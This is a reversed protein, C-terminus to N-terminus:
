AFVANPEQIHLPLSVFFTTGKGVASEFWLRGGMAEALNKSIPMGLGTGSGQRLGTETQKFSEFVADTDEAAIGPGTDEVAIEIEDGNRRARVSIFGEDTFKCANSLINNMIQRFRKQDIDVLPIDDAIRSELRVPKGALLAEATSCTERVIQGLDINVEVFLKLAGSEIKSIDLVDNILNLLHVSSQVVKSLTDKQQDNIPGMLGMHVFKSFNIIANLPTRLEHSMSALFASKVQDAKEAREQARLAAVVQQELNTVLLTIEDAMKNFTRGVQAIENVSNEAARASLNGEAFTHATKALARIARVASIITATAVALAVFMFLVIATIFTANSNIIQRWLEQTGQVLREAYTALTTGTTEVNRILTEWHSSDAALLASIAQEFQQKSRDIPDLMSLLNPDNLGAIYEDPKGNRLQLESRNLNNQAEQVFAVISNRATEDNGESYRHLLAIIIYTNARQSEATTSQHNLSNVQYASQTIVAIFAVMFAVLVGFVTYLRFQLSNSFPTM